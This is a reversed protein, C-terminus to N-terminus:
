QHSSSAWRRCSQLTTTIVRKLTPSQQKLSQVSMRFVFNYIYIRTYILFILTLFLYVIFLSCKLHHRVKLSDIKERMAVLMEHAAELKETLKHQLERSVALESLRQSHEADKVDHMEKNAVRM